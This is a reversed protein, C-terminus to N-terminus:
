RKIQYAKKLDGFTIEIGTKELDDRSERYLKEIIEAKVGDEGHHIARHCVPCLPKLNSLRDLDQVIKSQLSMPVLHHVEMFQNGTAKSVFTTHSEDYSCKYNSRQLSKAAIKADRPWSKRGGKDIVPEGRDRPGEDEFNDTEKEENDVSLDNANEQYSAEQENEELYEGDDELLLYDNFQEVTRGNMLNEVEQYALLLSRLDAVIESSSPLDDAAYYRGYIHGDEYGKGLNNRGALDIDTERLHFPLTNLHNRVISATKKVKERGKKTGYKDRFFSWGQNLSVYFGTMDAKMLYVIYYGRTATTTIDRSFISVWPVEAWQGQGVSGMVFYRGRDLPTEKEIVEVLDKRVYDGLKHGKLPQTRSSLYESLVYQFKEAIELDNSSAKIVSPYYVKESTEGHDLFESLPVQFYDTLKMLFDVSIKQEGKEMSYIGPYSVSLDGAMQRLSLGRSERFLKIKEGIERNYGNDM